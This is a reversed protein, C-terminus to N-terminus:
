GRRELESRDGMPANPTGTGPATTSRGDFPEPGDPSRGASRIQEAGGQQGQGGGNGAPQALGRSIRGALVGAIAAGALFTGPNRRAYERVEAMVSGPERQDLWGAVQHARDSAQRVLDGAMGPQQARESMTRLEDGLARLGQAARKQQSDAQQRLQDSARGMLERAQEGAEHAVDRGQQSANRALGGGAQSVQQGARSVGERAAQTKQQRGDGRSRADAEQM